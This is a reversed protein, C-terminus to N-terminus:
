KKSTINAYYDREKQHANSNKRLWQAFAPNRDYGAWKERKYLCRLRVLRGILDKSISIDGVYDALSEYTLPKLELVGTIASDRFDGLMKFAKEVEKIDTITSAVTAMNSYTDYSM